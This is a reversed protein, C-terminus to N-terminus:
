EVVKVFEMSNRSISYIGNIHSSEAIGDMNETDCFDYPGICIINKEKKIIKLMLVCVTACCINSQAKVCNILLDDTKYRGKEHLLRYASPQLNFLFHGIFIPPRYM